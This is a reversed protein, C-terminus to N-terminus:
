DAIAAGDDGADPRDGANARPALREPAPNERLAAANRADGTKVGALEPRVVAALNAVPIRRLKKWRVPELPEVTVRLEGDGGRQERQVVRTKRPAPVFRLRADADTEAGREPADRIRLDLVLSKQLLARAAHVLRKRELNEAAACVRVDGDLAAEAADARGVRIRAGAARDRDALRQTVNAVPHRVHNNGAAGLGRQTREREAREIEDFRHAPPRAIRVVRASGEVECAVTKHHALARRREHDLFVLM